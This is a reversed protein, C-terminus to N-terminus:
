KVNEYIITYRHIIPIHRVVISFLDYKFSETYKFM